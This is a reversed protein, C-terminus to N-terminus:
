SVLKGCNISHFVHTVYPNEQEFKKFGKDTVGPIGFSEKLDILLTDIRISKLPEKTKKIEAIRTAIAQVEPQTIM